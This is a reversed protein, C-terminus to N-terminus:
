GRGRKQRQKWVSRQVEQARDRQRKRFADPDGHTHAPFYRFEPDLLKPRLNRQKGYKAPM